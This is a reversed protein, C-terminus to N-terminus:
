PAPLLVRSLATRTRSKIENAGHRSMLLQKAVHNPSPGPQDKTSVHNKMNHYPCGHPTTIPSQRRLVFAVPRGFNINCCVEQHRSITQNGLPLSESNTDRGPRPMAPPTTSRCVKPTAVQGRSEALARSGARPTLAVQRACDVRAIHAYHACHACVICVVWRHQASKKDSNLSM